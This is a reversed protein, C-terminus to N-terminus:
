RFRDQNIQISNIKEFSTVTDGMSSSAISHLAFAKRQAFSVFCTVRILSPRGPVSDVRFHSDNTKEISKINLAEYFFYNRFDTQLYIMKHLSIRCKQTLDRWEFHIIEFGNKSGM